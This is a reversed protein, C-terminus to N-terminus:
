LVYTNYITSTRKHPYVTVGHWENIPSFFGIIMKGGRYRKRCWEWEGVQEDWSLVKLKTCKLNRKKVDEHLNNIVGLIFEDDIEKNFPIFNFNMKIANDLKTQSDFKWEGFEFTKCITKLFCKKCRKGSCEKGCSICKNM